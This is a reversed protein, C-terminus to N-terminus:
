SPCGGEPPESSGDGVSVCISGYLAYLDAVRFPEVRLVLWGGGSPVDFDQSVPDNRMGRFTLPGGDRQCEYEYGGLILCRLSALPAGGEPSFLYIEAEGTAGIGWSVWGRYMGEAPDAECLPEERMPTVGVYTERSEVRCLTGEGAGVPSGIGVSALLAALLAYTLTLNSLGAKPRRCGIINM